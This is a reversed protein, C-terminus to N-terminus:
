NHLANLRTAALKATRTDPYKNIVEQWTKRAEPLKGSAALAYGTKLLSDASKSSSPFEKLVINFQEIAQPYNNKVMYLEGLWYHANASYGGHPYKEVFSQMELLAHDFQKKNVLEYAALYRIQEDAPNNTSKLPPNNKELAVPVPAPIVAPTATPADGMNMASPAAPPAEARLRADLDKYFTLLQEQLLKIDHTQM